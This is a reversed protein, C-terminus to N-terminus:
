ILFVQHYQAIVPEGLMVWAYVPYFRLDGEAVWFCWWLYWAWCWFSHVDSQYALPGHTPDALFHSALHEQQRQAADLLHRVWEMGAWVLKFGLGCRCCLWLVGKTSHGLLVM